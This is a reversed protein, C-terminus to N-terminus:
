PEKRKADIESKPVQLLKATLDEFNKSESESHGPDQQPSNTLDKFTFAGIPNSTTETM